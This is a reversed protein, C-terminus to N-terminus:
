IPILPEKKGNRISEGLMAYLQAANYPWASAIKHGGGYRHKAPIPLKALKTGQRRIALAARAPCSCWV